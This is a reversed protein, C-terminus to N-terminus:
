KTSFFFLPSHSKPKIFQVEVHLGNCQLKGPLGRGGATILWHAKRFALWIMELPEQAVNLTERERARESERKRYKLIRLIEPTTQIIINALWIQNTQLNNSSHLKNISM